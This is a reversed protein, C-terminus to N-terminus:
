SEIVNKVITDIWYEGNTAYLEDMASLFSKQNAEIINWKKVAAEREAVENKKIRTRARNIYDNYITDKKETIKKFSDAKRQEAQKTELRFKEDMDVIKSLMDDM